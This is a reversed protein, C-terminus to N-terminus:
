VVWKDWEKECEVNTNNASEVHVPCGYKGLICDSPKEGFHLLSGQVAHVTYGCCPACLVWNEDLKIIGYSAYEGDKMMNKEAKRKLYIYTKHRKFEYRCM